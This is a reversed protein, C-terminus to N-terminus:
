PGGVDILIKGRAHGSRSREHARDIDALSHVSDIVPRLKGAEVLAAIRELVQGDPKAQALVGRSRYQRALEASPPFVVSVLCGGARLSSWSRTQTEGGITDLVVDADRVVSEFRQRHYDIVTDCGLEELLPLNPASATGIVKAGCTKAIQVALTGVGGAAAHILVSQGARLQALVVLAEYATLSVLPLGAADRLDLNAPARAVSNQDLAIYEAYTGDRQVGAYGFVAAGIELRNAGLGLAAVRGAFDCGLIAPFTLPLRAKIRGERLLWDIPNVAAAEIRVVIEGSAAVPDPADELRMQDVGGYDHIRVAQL